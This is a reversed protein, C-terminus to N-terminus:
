STFTPTAQCSHVLRDLIADAFTPGGIVEHWTEVPLPSTIVTTRRGRVACPGSPVRPKM